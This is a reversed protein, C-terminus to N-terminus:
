AARGSEASHGPRRRRRLADGQHELIIAEYVKRHSVSTVGLMSVALDFLAAARFSTATLSGRAWELSAMDLHAQLRQALRDIWDALIGADALDALSSAIPKAITRGIHRRASDAHESNALVLLLARYYRPRRVLHRVTTEVVFILDADARDLSSVFTRTQDEIAELFVQEKNGVLNYLTPVTVGSELALNRMTLGEYGKSEILRRAAELIRERRSAMKQDLISMRIEAQM